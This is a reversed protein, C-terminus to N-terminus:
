IIYFKSELKQKKCAVAPIYRKSLRRGGNAENFPVDSPRNRTAKHEYHKEPIRSNRKEKNELSSLLQCIKSNEIEEVADLQNMLNEQLKDLHNNIKIRTEMIEKEIEKRNQKLTSLNDQQHRRIKQLNEAVEVLIEEIECVANSTKANHIVEDLKVIDQCITHCKIICKSCCPSEHKQCYMQFKEYHKTCNQSAKLFDTPLKKYDTIPVVSHNMSSKSLSHQEKSETCLGVDCETCWFLSQKTIHSDDCAGCSQSTAM